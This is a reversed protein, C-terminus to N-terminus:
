SSDPGPPAARHPDLGTPWQAALAGDLTLARGLGDDLIAGPTEGVRADPGLGAAAPDLGLDKCIRAIIEPLPRGLIDPHEGLREAAEDDLREIRDPDDHETRIARRVARWARARADDEREQLREVQDAAAIAESLARSESQSRRVRAQREGEETLESQLQITLRVARSVRGYARAVAEVDAGEREAEAALRRAIQLGIAALEDLQDLQREVRADAQAPMPEAASEAILSNGDPM